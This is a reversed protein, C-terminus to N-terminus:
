FIHVCAQGISERYLLHAIGNSSQRFAFHRAMVADGHLEEMFVLLLDGWVEQLCERCHEAFAGGRWEDVFPDDGENRLSPIAGPEVVLPRYREKAVNVFNQGLDKGSPELHGERVDDYGIM